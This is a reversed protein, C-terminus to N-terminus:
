SRSTAWLMRMIDRESITAIRAQSDDVGYSLVLTQPETPHWALGAAFEIQKEHLCFPLSLMVLRLQADYLAWRHYYYRKTSNPKVHATHTLSLFGPGFPILQTGGSITDTSIPLEQVSVDKGEIDVVHGPRYMFQLDSVQAARGIIPSWNKETQRPQRLMRIVQDVNANKDGPVIRTLVQECNGDWFMQRCTSSAWFEDNIPILRMDEFGLVKDFHLPLDPPNIIEVASVPDAFPDNGIDLLFNRTEIAVDGLPKDGVWYSGNEDIRYNVTRAICALRGEAGYNAVSPNLVQWDKPPTFSLPESHFSPALETIKPMYYFLNHAATSKIWPYANPKLLALETAVKFAKHRKAENYFGTIAFENALGGNYVYDSVFLGDTTRPIGLGVEAFLSALNQHGDKNRYHHALDYLTEARSPRMNYAKLLNLIFANEDGMEKLCHALNVQANWQEEAWGGADVRKQYMHAAKELQGGDRYSQALYFMYRENNPEDQLGKELLAIDRKFKEPRNAGDAHDLFYAVDPMITGGSHVDLYEHTVGKYWGEAKSSILRRNMYHLQGSRQEMDMSLAGIKTAEDLGHNFDLVSNVKLEMDADTLLCWDWGLKNQNMRAARLAFNRAQSWDTFKTKVLKGPKGHAKFFDKIKKETDDSSGTDAIVWCDIYQAVSELAREIRGAENKVIMNLCLRPM